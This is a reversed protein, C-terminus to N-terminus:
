ISLIYHAVKEVFSKYDNFIVANGFHGYDISSESLELNAINESYYAIYEEKTTLSKNADPIHYAFVLTKTPTHMFNDVNDQSMKLYKEAHHKAFGEWKTIDKQDNYYPLKDPIAFLQFYPINNCRLNATEGMMNEFYNNSNQAYNQMVMKVGLGAVAIEKDGEKKFFTIDVKKDFYRGTLTAEKNDGVGLSKVSYGEGLLSLIDTAVKNHLILLKKNSRSSTALFTAFAEKLTALLENNNM